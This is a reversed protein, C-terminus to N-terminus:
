ELGLNSIEEEPDSTQRGPGEGRGRQGSGMAEQDLGSSQPPNGESDSRGTGRVGKRQIKRFRPSQIPFGAVELYGMTQAWSLEALLSAPPFPGDNQQIGTTHYVCGQYVQLSPVIAKIKYNLYCLTLFPLNRLILM